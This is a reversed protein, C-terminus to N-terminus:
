NHFPRKNKEVTERFERVLKEAGTKQEPTLNLELDDMGKKGRKIMDKPTGSNALIFWAYARALDNPLCNGSAYMDGLQCQAYSGGANAADQYLELAKAKDQAVGLGQAYMDAIFSESLVDGSLEVAKQYLVIAHAYDQKVSRRGKSYMDALHRSAEKNGQDVAKQFWSAATLEDMGVGVGRSYKLALKFQAVAYGQEAAKKYWEVSKPADAPIDDAGKKSCIDGMACQALPDGQEAAKQTEELSASGQWVKTTDAPFSKPVVWSAPPDIAAAPITAASAPVPNMKNQAGCISAAAAIIIIGLTTNM